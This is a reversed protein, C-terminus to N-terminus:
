GLKVEDLLPKFADPADLARVDDKHVVSGRALAGVPSQLVEERCVVADRLPSDPTLVPNRRPRRVVEPAPQETTPPPPWRDEPVSADVFYDPGFAMTIPHNGGLRQGRAV